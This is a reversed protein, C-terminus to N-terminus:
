VRLKLNQIEKELALLRIMEANEDQEIAQKENLLRELCTMREQIQNNIMNEVSDAFGLFRQELQNKFVAVQDPIITEYRARIQKSVQSIFDNRRYEEFQRLFYKGGFVAIPIAIFPMNVALVLGGFILGGGLIHVDDMNVSDINIVAVPLNAGAKIPVLDRQSVLNETQFIQGLKKKVRSFEKNLCDNIAKQIKQEHEQQLPASVQEIANAIEEPQLSGNYNHVQMVVQRAIRQLGYRYDQMLEEISMNLSYKLQEFARRSNKQAREISPKLAEIEQIIDLSSKGINNKRQIIDEQILNDAIVCLRKKYKDLKTSAKEEILYEALTTEFAVFGTEELSEVIRGKVSEGNEKRRWKLADRSSVLFLRPNEVIGELNKRATEIIRDGDNKDILLDKFNVVFFIKKIDNKLIRDKVFILESRSLIQEASLLMIAADAEPIFQFTIEERVQDLDNTGPTDIIEIGDKLLSLPYCLEIYAIEGVKVVAEQYVDMEKERAEDIEVATIGKFEEYEIEKINESNRYHIIYRPEKGYHIRNIVTTTPDSKAPLIRKGLMANTFTSKGRSFEGVVVIKFTDEALLQRSKSIQELLKANGLKEAIGLLINYEHDLKNRKKKYEEIKM